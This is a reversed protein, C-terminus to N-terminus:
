PKDPFPVPMPQVGTKFTGHQEFWAVQEAGYASMKGGNHGIGAVTTLTWNFPVKYRKAKQGATLFYTRARELRSDGQAMAAYSRRLLPHYPDNDNRGVTILVPLAFYDALQRQSVAVPSGELGYPWPIEVDAMTWWGAAACIAAKISTVPAFTLMRHAFQCGASNGFLYYQKQTTIGQQQMYAFVDNIVTFAWEDRPNTKGTKANVMNGLNYGDHGPYEQESFRPAIVM